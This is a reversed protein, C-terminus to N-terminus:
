VIDYPTYFTKWHSKALSALFQVATNPVNEVYCVEFLGVQLIYVRVFSNSVENSEFKM